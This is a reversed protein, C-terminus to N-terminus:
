AARNAQREREKRAVEKAVARAEAVAGKRRVQLAVGTKDVALGVGFWRLSVTGVWM